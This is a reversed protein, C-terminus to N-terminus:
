YTNNNKSHNRKHYTKNKIKRAFAKKIGKENEAKRQKIENRLNQNVIKQLGRFPIKTPRNYNQRDQYKRLLYNKTSVSYPIPNGRPFNNKIITRYYDKKETRRLDECVIDLAEYSIAGMVAYLDMLMISVSTRM